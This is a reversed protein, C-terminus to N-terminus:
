HRVFSARSADMSPGCFVLAPGLTTLLFLLCPPYKNTNLFSLATFAASKQKSWKVPDGYVNISHLILFLATAV